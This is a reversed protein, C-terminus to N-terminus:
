SPIVEGMRPGRRAPVVGAVAMTTMFRPVALGVSAIATVTAVEASAAM